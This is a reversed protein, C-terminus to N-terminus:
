GIREPDLVLGSAALQRLRDTILRTLAQPDDVPGDASELALTGEDRADLVARALEPVDRTGDMAALLVRDLPDVSRHEQRATVVSTLGQAVQHRVLRTTTPRQPVGATVPRQWRGADLRGQVLIRMARATVEDTL